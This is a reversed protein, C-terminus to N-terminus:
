NILNNIKNIIQNRSNLASSQKSLYENYRNRYYRKLYEDTANPNAKYQYKEYNQKAIRAESIYRKYNTDFDQYNKIYQAVTKYRKIDNEIAKTESTIVKLATIIRKRSPSQWQDTQLKSILNDVKDHNINDIKNLASELRSVNVKEYAM